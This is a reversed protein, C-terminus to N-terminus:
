EGTTRSRTPIWIRMGLGPRNGWAFYPLASLRNLRAPEVTTASSEANAYPWEPLPPVERVFADFSVRTMEGPEPESEVSTGVNPPVAVEVSEVSEGIELDADELAYVLPGRELAVCGRIADIRPDPATARAPMALKLEVRDGDRWVRTLDINGPGSAVVGEGVTATASTCWGPVRMSLTWPEEVTGSVEIEVTGEWPYATRTVVRVPRGHASADFTGDVYQQLQVGRSSATTALDPFTSLFRMLNPPCCAIPPWPIRRTTANGEVVEAGLSRRMLPNSYFFKAGDLALSPLVANFATREILDAFRSEGTALLLRWALMVSGIAACTEAYARDAPLEFADGFAEDRHHAGLGGTLYTRSSVMSEWRRISAQLLERDATEVALDVVGCDLYMQRVAHGTPEAAIRVPEHDQWYRVGHRGKGLLGHGRREILTAALELYEAGGTARYLEVLAMEFEPHGCVIERRGRGLEANIRGVFRRAIRLLRDDGLSRDWAIAAQVLHGAVYLEHGWEMDTFERGPLAVQYFTDVYGDARQAKGVLDIMPEALSLLAPDPSQGLEWGVAELWKYVDSDLFPATTGGDDIEGRYGTDSGAAALEFNVLNGAARLQDAGHPITVEHNTRRRDEWLGGEIRNRNLGLPRLQVAANLTPVVPAVTGLKTSGIQPRPRAPSAM